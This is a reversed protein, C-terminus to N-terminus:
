KRNAKGKYNDTLKHCELCLTVGNELQNRLEPFKSFSKIHHAELYCGRIGCGQCTWNDRTFIDSRWQKYESSM